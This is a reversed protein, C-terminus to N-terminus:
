ARRKAKGVRFVPRAQVAYHELLVQTAFRSVVAVERHQPQCSCSTTTPVLPRTVQCGLCPVEFDQLPSPPTLASLAGPALLRALLCSPTSVQVNQGPHNARSARPALICAFSHRLLVPVMVHQFPYTSCFSFVLGSSKDVSVLRTSQNEAEITGVRRGTSIPSKSKLVTGTNPTSLACRGSRRLSAPVLRIGVQPTPKQPKTKHLPPRTGGKCRAHQVTCRTHNSYNLCWSALCAVNSYWM